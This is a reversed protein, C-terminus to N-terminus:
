QKKNFYKNKYIKKMLNEETEKIILKNVKLNILFVIKNTEVMPESSILYDM